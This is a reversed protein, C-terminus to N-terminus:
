LQAFSALARARAQTHDVIPEPYDIGLRVSAAARELATAQWPKHIWRDPLAALEPVWRRVYTGHPDFKDGQLVPNFIRFYPAADTGCGAVWQWSGANNALDADVLTDWFWAEGVQWPILLHKVLFSATIMRVRNHMWGTHWLQRMGADVLPYGTQGRQWARLAATDEEWPFSAFRPQLPQDPLQPFRDLVDINFERWALERLFAEGAATEDPVAHMHDRVAHWVQRPSVEGFHLHPSLRSTVGPEPRDRESRYHRLDEDIFRTLRTRASSEGPQWTERLGLAWDPRSPRLLWNDFRDGPPLAPLPQLRTPESVPEPPPPAARCARWFPTFVRLRRGDRGAISGAPFLTAGDHVHLRIGLNQLRRALRTEVPRWFPENQRIAHVAAAGIERAFAVVVDASAGRRLCLPVGRASLAEGLAALSGQLWWRSAGGMRWVGPTVDDLVYLPAVRGGAAAAMLAPHDAM